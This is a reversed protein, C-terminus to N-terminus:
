PKTDGALKRGLKISDRTIQDRLSESLYEALSMARDSAVLQALKALQRDFKISVDDRESKPRGRRREEAWAELKPAQEMGRAKAILAIYRNRADPPWKSDPGDGYERTMAEAEARAQKMAETPVKPTPEAKPEPGAESQAKRRKAM